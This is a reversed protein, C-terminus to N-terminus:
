FFGFKFLVTAVIVTVLGALGIALGSMAGETEGLDVAKTTGLAHSSTGIAIGKATKDTIKCIKLLWEAFVAGFIGTIIIAAVTVSPIGKLQTSLEIGLPTTISKPVLSAILEKSLSFAESMAWVSLIATVSGIIVGGLIAVYDKKLSNINKYLPVALIVTAPTLFLSIFDGGKKYDELPIHLALLAGIVLAIAIMLPNLFAIRTKKNIFIGIEYALISILLAFLPSSIIEKM